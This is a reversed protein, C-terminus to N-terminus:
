LVIESGYQPITIERWGLEDRLKAELMRAADPEGHVIAVRKPEGHLNRCWRLLEEQDAHASFGAIEEVRCNVELETGLITVRGRRQVARGLGGTPQYGVFLVTDETREVRARLHHLIRGGNLMGSASILIMPENIGNLKASEARNQVFHLKECLFPSTGNRLVGIAEEDYDEPHARYVSTVDQAMPSDVLVPLVPIRGQQELERILYLLLQTRGIAFSPILVAGGMETTSRIIEVFTEVEDARPHLSDGYTSEILLLDGGKVPQPDRLVPVGYRGIDGSFSITADGIELTISAAGLIHGSRTWTASIRPAIEVRTDFPIEEFLEICANADDATYLPTSDGGSPTDEEQIKGADPLTLMCLHRTAGTCYVPCRLGLAYFRPLLGVHDVHAHTLLVADLDLPRLLQDDRNLEEWRADGQFVGADVLLRKGAGEVVFKSGTVTGAAGFFRVRVEGENM